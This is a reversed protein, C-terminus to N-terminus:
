RYSLVWDAKSARLILHYRDPVQCLALIPVEIIPLQCLLASKPGVASLGPVAVSANGKGPPQHDSLRRWGLSHWTGPSSEVCFVIPVSLLACFPHVPSVDAHSDMLWLLLSLCGLDFLWMAFLLCHLGACRSTM